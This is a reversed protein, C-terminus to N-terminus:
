EKKEEDKDEKGPMVMEINMVAPKDEVAQRELLGASKALMQGVRIKDILEIELQEGNQTPTVKIKKIAALAHEPIDKSDKVLVQGNKWDMIDTIKVAFLGMLATAINDRNDYIMESGRLRKQIDGVGGFKGIPPVARKSM